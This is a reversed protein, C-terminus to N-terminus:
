VPTTDAAGIACGPKYPVAVATPVFPSPKVALCPSSFSFRLMHLLTHLVAGRRLISKWAILRRLRLSPLRRASMASSSSSTLPPSATCVVLPLLIPLMSTMFLPLLTEWTPFPSGRATQILGGEGTCWTSWASAGTTHTWSTSLKTNRKM